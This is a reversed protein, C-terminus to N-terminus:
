RGRARACGRSGRPAPLRGDNRLGQLSVSRVRPESGGPGARERGNTPRGCVWLSCPPSQGPRAPAAPGCVGRSSRPRRKGRVRGPGARRRALRTEPGPRGRVGPQVGPEVQCAAGPCGVVSARRPRPGRRPKPERRQSEPRCWGVARTAPWGARRPAQKVQVVRSASAMKSGM